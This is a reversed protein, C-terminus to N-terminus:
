VNPNNPRPHREIRPPYHDLIARVEADTLAPRRSWMDLLRAASERDLWGGFADLASIAARVTPASVAWDISGEDVGMGRETTAATPTNGLQYGDVGTPVTPPTVPGDAAGASRSYFWGGADDDPPYRLTPLSAFFADM